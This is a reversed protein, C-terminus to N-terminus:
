GSFDDEQDDINGPGEEKRLWVVLLGLYVIREQVEYNLRLSM